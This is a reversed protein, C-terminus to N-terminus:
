NLTGFVNDGIQDYNSWYTPNNSINNTEGHHAAPRTMSEQDGAISAPHLSCNNAGGKSRTKRRRRSIRRKSKTRVLRRKSYRRKSMRKSYKRAM